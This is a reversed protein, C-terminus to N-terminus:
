MTLFITDFTVTIIFIKERFAYHFVLFVTLFRIVKMVAVFLLLV